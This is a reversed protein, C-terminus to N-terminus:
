LPPSMVFNILPPTRSSSTAQPGQMPMPKAGGVRPGDTRVKLRFKSPRLPVGSSRTYRQLGSVAAAVAIPPLIASGRSRPFNGVNFSGSFYGTSVLPNSHGGFSRAETLITRPGFMAGKGTAFGGFSGNWPLQIRRDDVIM